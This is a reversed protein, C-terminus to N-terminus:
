AVRWLRYQLLAFAMTLALVLLAAARVGFPSVMGVLPSAVAGGAISMVLLASVASVAHPHHPSAAGFVFGYVNAFGAAFLAVGLLYVPFSWAAVMVVAGAVAGLASPVMYQTVGHRAFLWAGLSMMPLKVGFLVAYVSGVSLDGAAFRRTLTDPVSLNFAVDAVVAVAFSVASLAVVCDKLLALIASVSVAPPPACGPLMEGGVAKTAPGCGVLVAALVAVLAFAPFVLRWNGAIAFAAVVFPLGIAAAMRAALGAMLVGPLRVPGFSDAALVPVSVQLLVNSMGALAFGVVVTLSRPAGVALLLFSPLTSLLSLAVARQAGVRGCIRGALVPLLSFWLFLLASVSDVVDLKAAFVGIGDAFAMVAFASLLGIHPRCVM